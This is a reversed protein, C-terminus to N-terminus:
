RGIYNPKRKELFAKHSESFDESGSAIRQLDREVDLQEDLSNSLSSELAHKILGLALTPRGALSAALEKAETMLADDDVCKWIMGWEAAKEASVPEALLTLALARTMGVLRPLSYTGGADPILGINSFVQIFKASRAAIVIDCALAINAGAGAAVGNVACVVPKALRRISRILPNYLVELSGAAPGPRESRDKLDQGSCFGRGSGTLLVARIEADDRVRDMAERLEVHMDDTVANLRDPRNLTITAVAGDIEFLVTNGLM